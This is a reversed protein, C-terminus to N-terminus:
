FFPIFHKFQASLCRISSLEQTDLLKLNQSILARLQREVDIENELNNEGEIWAGVPIYVAGAADTDHGCLPHDWLGYDITDIGPEQDSGAFTSAELKWLRQSFTGTYSSVSQSRHVPGM